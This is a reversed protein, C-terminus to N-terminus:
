PSAAPMRVICQEVRPVYQRREQLFSAVAERTTIRSVETCSSVQGSLARITMYRMGGSAAVYSNFAVRYRKAPDLLVGLRNRLSRVRSGPKAELAIEAKLGFPFAFSSSDWYDLLCELTQGIEAPTLEMTVMLNEFPVFIFLDRMTMMRNSVTWGSSFAGHFVIEAKTARAIAECILTQPPSERSWTGRGGLVGKIMCLEQTAVRDARQLAEAAIGRIAASEAVGPGVPILEARKATLRRSQGDFELVIEGLVIGHYAAQTFLTTGRVVNTVACHTHGGIVVDIDPFLRVAKGLAPEVTHEEEMWGMHALVVVADPKGARVVPMVRTLTAAPQEVTTGCLLDDVSWYPVKPHTIGIFAIRMGDVERVLFDRVRGCATPVPASWRINAGLMDYPSRALNTVLVAFGWDFEHNGITAMSLGLAGMCAQIAAGRDLYSALTGQLMDGNDVLIAGPHEKLRGQIVTGLQLIGGVGANGGYDTVPEIQGHLDTTHLITVEVPGTAAYGGITEGMSDVAMVACGTVLRRPEKAEQVLEDIFSLPNCGALTGAFAGTGLVIALM